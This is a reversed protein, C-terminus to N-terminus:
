TTVRERYLIGYAELSTNTRAKIVSILVWTILAHDYTLNTDNCTKYPIKYQRIRSWDISKGLVWNLIVMFTKKSFAIKGLLLIETTNWQPIYSEVTLCERSFIIKGIAQWSFMKKIQRFDILKESFEIYQFYYYKWWIWTSTKFLRDVNLM